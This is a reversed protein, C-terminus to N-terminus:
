IYKRGVCSCFCLLLFLLLTIKQFHFFHQLIITTRGTVFIEVRKEAFQGPQNYTGKLIWLEGNLNTVEKSVRFHNDGSGCECNTMASSCENKDNFLLHCVPKRMDGPKPSM